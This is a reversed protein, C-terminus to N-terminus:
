DSSSGGWRRDGGTRRGRGPSRQTVQRRDEGARREVSAPERSLDGTAETVAPQLRLSARLRGMAIDNSAALARGMFVAGTRVGARRRVLLAYLVTALVLGILALTEPM